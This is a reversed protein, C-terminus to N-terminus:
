YVLLAKHDEPELAADSGFHDALNSLMKTWSREPLLGPQFAFHCSGCEKLYLKNEVAKVGSKSKKTFYSHDNALVILSLLLTSFLLKKM